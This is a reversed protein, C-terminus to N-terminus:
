RHDSRAPEFPSAAFAPPPTNARAGDLKIGEKEAITVLAFKTSAAFVDERTVIDKAKEKVHSKLQTFPVKMLRPDTLYDVTM